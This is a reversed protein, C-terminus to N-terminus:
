PLRKVRYAVYGRKIDPDYPQIALIDFSFRDVVFTLGEYVEQKHILKPMVTDPTSRDYVVIDLYTVRGHRTVGQADVFDEWRISYCSIDLEDGNPTEMAFAQGGVAVYAALPDKKWDEMKRQEEQTLTPTPMLTVRPTTAAPQRPLQAACSAIGVAMGIALGLRTITRTMSLM